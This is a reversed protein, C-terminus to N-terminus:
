EVDTVTDYASLTQQRLEHYSQERLAQDDFKRPFPITFHLGPFAVLQRLLNFGCGTYIRDTYQILDTAPYYNMHDVLGALVAPLRPSVLALSSSGGDQVLHRNAYEYLRLIEADSGSHIILWPRKKLIRSERLSLTSKWDCPDQLTFMPTLANSYRELMVRQAQALPEVFYSQEFRPPDGSLSRQYVDWKLRRAVHIIPIPKPWPFDCWEGVIGAPFTDIYLETIAYKSITSLLFQRYKDPEFALGKPLLISRCKGIVRFDTVADCASLFIVGEEKLDITEIVSRARTLHGLGGGVAYYLIM